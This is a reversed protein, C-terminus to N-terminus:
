TYKVSRKHSIVRKFSQKSGTILLGLVLPLTMTKRAIVSIWLTAESRYQAFYLLSKEVVVTIM